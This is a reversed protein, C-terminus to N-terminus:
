SWKYELKNNLPIYQNRGKKLKEEKKKTVNKKGENM